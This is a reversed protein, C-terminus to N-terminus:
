CSNINLWDRFPVSKSNGLHSPFQSTSLSFFSTPFFLSELTLSSFSTTPYFVKLYM